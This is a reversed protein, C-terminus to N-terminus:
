RTDRFQLDYTLEVQWVANAAGTIPLAYKLGYHTVNPSACDVWTGAKPQSYSTFTGSYAALAIRPTLVRDFYTGSNSVLATDYEQLVSYALTNNDDYDIATIIPPYPVTASTDIFLPYFAIKVHLIRYTDFLATFETYDPLSGLSFAIAGDVEATVSGTITGYNQKRHFSYLKHRPLVSWMIDPTDPIDKITQQKNLAVIQKLLADTKNEKPGRRTRRNKVNNTRKTM